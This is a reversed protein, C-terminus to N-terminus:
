NWKCASLCRLVSFLLFVNCEMPAFRRMENSMNEASNVRIRINLLNLALLFSISYGFIHVVKNASGKPTSKTRHSRNANFSLDSSSSWPLKRLSNKRVSNPFRFNFEIKWILEQMRKEREREREWKMTFLPCSKM